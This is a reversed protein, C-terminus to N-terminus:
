AHNVQLEEAKIDYLPVWKKQAVRVDKTYEEPNEYAKGLVCDCKIPTGDVMGSMSSISTKSRAILGCCTCLWAVSRLELDTEVDIHITIYPITLDVIASM